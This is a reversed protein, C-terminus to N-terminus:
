LKGGEYLGDESMKKYFWDLGKGTLLTKKHFKTEGNPREYTTVRLVALGQDIAWQYPENDYRLFGIHRAYKFLRNRGTDLAKAAVNFDMTEIDLKQILHALDINPQEEEIYKTIKQNEAELLLKEEESEIYMQTTKNWAKVLDLKSM